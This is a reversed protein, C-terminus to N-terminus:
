NSKLAAKLQSVTEKLRISDRLLRKAPTEWQITGTWKSQLRPAEDPRTTSKGLRQTVLRATHDAEDLWQLTQVHKDGKSGMGLSNLLSGFSSSASGRSGLAYITEAIHICALADHHALWLSHLSPGTENQKDTLSLRQKEVRALRLASAQFQLAKELHSRNDPDAYLASLSLLTSILSRTLIPSPAKASVLGVPSVATPAPLKEHLNNHLVKESEQIEIPTPTLGGVGAIIQNRVIGDRATEQAEEMTQHEALSVARLLWGEAESKSGLVFHLDGVKTALRVLRETPIKSQGSDHGVSEMARNTADVSSLLDYVRTYGSLAGKLSDIGGLRERLSALKCELSVATWDLPKRAAAANSSNIGARIAALDPIQIGRGEALILTELLFNEAMGLGEDATFLRSSSKNGGATQLGAGPSIISTPSIGGGWESCIWASRLTHRGRFGLRPDTGKGIGWGEDRCEDSWGWPDDEQSQIQSKPMAVHEVYQHVGEYTLLGATAVGATTFVIM